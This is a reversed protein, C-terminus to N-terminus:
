FKTTLFSFSPHQHHHYYHHSPPSFSISLHLHTINGIALQSVRCRHVNGLKNKKNCNQRTRDESKPPTLFSPSVLSPLSPPVTSVM